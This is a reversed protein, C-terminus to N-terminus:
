LKEARLKRRRKTCSIYIKVKMVDVREKSCSASKWTKNWVVCLFVVLINLNFTERTTCKAVIDFFASFALLKSILVSVRKLALVFM